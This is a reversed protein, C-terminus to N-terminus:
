RVVGTRVDWYASRPDPLGPQDAHSDSSASVTESRRNRLYKPLKM